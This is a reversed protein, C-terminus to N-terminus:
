GKVIGAKILRRQGQKLNKPTFGIKEFIREGHSSEHSGRVIKFTEVLRGDEEKMLAGLNIAGPFRGDAVKRAIPHCHTSIYIESGTKKAADLTMSIARITDKSDAGIGIEDLLALSYPTLFCTDYHAVRSRIDDEGLLRQDDWLLEQPILVFSLYRLGSKLGGEKEKPNDGRKFSTFVGDVVSLRAKRAPVFSGVQGLVQDQGRMRLYSTKGNDSGGTIVFEHTTGDSEVDNPVLTHHEEDRAKRLVFSAVNGDNIHASRSEKKLMKPMVIPSVKAMSRGLMALSYYFALEQDLEGTKINLADMNKGLGDHMVRDCQYLLSSTQKLFFKQADTIKRRRRFDLISTDGLKATMEDLRREISFADIEARDILGDLKPDNMISHIVGRLNKLGFYIARRSDVDLEGMIKSYDRRTSVQAFFDVLEATTRQDGHNLGVIEVIDGLAAHYQQLVSQAHKESFIKLGKYEPRKAIEQAFRKVGRLTSSKADLALASSVLSVLSGVQSTRKGFNGASDEMFRPTWPSLARVSEVIDCIYGQTAQNEYIEKVVDQRRRIETLDQVPVFFKKVVQEPRKFGFNEITRELNKLVIGFDLNKIGTSDIFEHDESCTYECSDLDLYGTDHNRDGYRESDVLVIPQTRSYRSRYMLANTMFFDECLM